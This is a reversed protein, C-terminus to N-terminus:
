LVGGWEIVSRVVAYGLLFGLALEGPTHVGLRMRAWGVVGAAAFGIPLFDAMGLGHLLDFSWWAGLAGGQALLHMSVKVWRTLVMAMALALMMAFVLSLVETPLFVGPRTLAYYGLLQYFMVVLFPVWREQRQSAELDSLAGRRHLVYLSIAPAIANILLISLVYVMMAPQLRLWPDVSWLLLFVILPMWLPHLVYSIVLALSRM